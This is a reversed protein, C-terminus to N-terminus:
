RLSSAALSTLFTRRRAPHTFVHGTVGLTEADKLKDERNDIFVAEAPTHWCNRAPATSGVNVSILDTNGYDWGTAGPM